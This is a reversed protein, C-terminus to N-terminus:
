RLDSSRGKVAAGCGACYSFHPSIREGCSSCVERFDAKCGTCISQGEEMDAGCFSCRKGGDRETMKKLARSLFAALVHDGDTAASRVLNAMRTRQEEGREPSFPVGGLVACAALIAIKRRRDPFDGGGDLVALLSAYIGPDTRSTAAWKSLMATLHSSLSLLDHQELTSLLSNLGNASRFSSLLPREVPNMSRSLLRVEWDVYGDYFEVGGDKLRLIGYAEMADLYRATDLMLGSGYADLLWGVVNKSAIRGNGDEEMRAMELLPQVAPLNKISMDYDYRMGLQGLADGLQRDLFSADPEVQDVGQEQLAPLNKINRVLYYLRVRGACHDYLDSVVKQVGTRRLGNLGNVNEVIFSSAERVFEDRPPMQVPVTILGGTERENIAPGPDARDLILAPNPEIAMVAHLGDRESMKEYIMRVAQRKVDLTWGPVGRELHDIGFYWRWFTVEGPVLGDLNSNELFEQLGDEFERLSLRRVPGGDMRLFSSASLYVERNCEEVLVALEEELYNLVIGHERSGENVSGSMIGAMAAALRPPVSGGRGSGNEDRAGADSWPGAGPERRAREVAKGIEESFRVLAPEVKKAIEEMDFRPGVVADLSTRVVLREAQFMSSSAGIQTGRGDAARDGVHVATEAREGGEDWKFTVTAHLMTLPRKRVGLFRVFAELDEFYFSHGTDLVAGSSAPKGGGMGGLDRLVHLMLTTKGMGGSGHLLVGHGSLLQQCLGSKEAKRGFLLNHKALEADLERLSRM